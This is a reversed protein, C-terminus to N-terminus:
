TYIILAARDLEKEWLKLANECLWSDTTEGRADDTRGGIHFIKGRVGKQPCLCDHEESRECCFIPRDESVRYERLSSM